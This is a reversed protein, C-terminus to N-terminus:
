FPFQHVNGPGLPLPEVRDVAEMSIVGYVHPFLDGGRSPEWKLSTGLREEDITVLVLDDQDCFHKAVTEKVQGASSLHIFGDQLDIGAGRFEGEGEAQRWLDSSLVKYLPQSM